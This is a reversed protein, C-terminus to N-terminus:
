IEKNDYYSLWTVYSKQPYVINRPKMTVIFLVFNSNVTSYYSYYTLETYMELTLLNIYLASLFNYKKRVMFHVPHNYHKRYIRFLKNGVYIVDVFGLVLNHRTMYQAFLFIYLFLLKFAKDLDLISLTNGLLQCWIAMTITKNISSSFLVNTTQSM